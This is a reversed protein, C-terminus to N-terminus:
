LFQSLEFTTRYGSQSIDHKATNVVYSGSFRGMNDLSLTSGPQIDANGISSGDATLLNRRQKTLEADALTQAEAKSKVRGDAYIVREASNGKIQPLGTLSLKKMYEPANDIMARASISEKRSADWGRVEVAGVHGATSLHTSFSLLNKGRAVIVQPGVRRPKFFLSSGETWFSFGNTDAIEKLFKMNSVHNQIKPVQRPVTATVDANLKMERAIVAVIQDDTQDVGFERFQTGRTANHLADFGDVQISLGGNEDLDAGLATIEGTILKKTSNAYGMFIELRKGEALLMETGDILTFDPDSIQLSFSSPDNTVQKVSVHMISMLIAPPMPIGEISIQFVPAYVDAGLFNPTQLLAM